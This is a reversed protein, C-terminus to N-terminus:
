KFYRHGDPIMQCYVTILIKRFPDFAEAYGFQEPYSLTILDIDEAIKEAVANDTMPMTGFFTSCYAKSGTCSSLLRNAFDNWKAEIEQAEKANEAHYSFLQLEEMYSALERQARKKGFFIPGSSAAAKIMVWAHMFPDIPEQKNQSFINKKM